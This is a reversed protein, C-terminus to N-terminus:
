KMEKRLRRTYKEPYMETLLSTTNVAFAIVMVGLAMMQANKM